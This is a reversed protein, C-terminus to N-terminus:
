ANKLAEMEADRHNMYAELMIDHAEKAAICCTPTSPHTAHDPHGTHAMSELHAEWSCDACINGCGMPQPDGCVWCVCIPTPEPYKPYVM